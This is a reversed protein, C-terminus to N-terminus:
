KQLAALLTDTNTIPSYASELMKAWDTMKIDAPYAKNAYELDNWRNVGDGFKFKRTDSEVGTEGRLLVPNAISWQAATKYQPMFKGEIIKTAM